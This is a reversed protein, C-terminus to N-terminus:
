IKFIKRLFSPLLLLLLIKFNDTFSPKKWESSKKLHKIYVKWLYYKYIFNFSNLNKKATKISDNNLLEIKDPDNCTNNKHWRYAAVKEDDYLLLDKAVVRLYFDWDEVILKEDYNGVIDFLKKDIFGTPGVIVWHKIIEKKLGADSFYSKKRYFNNKNRLGFLASDYLHEGDDDIVTADSVLMLKHPNKKLLQVRNTFTNNIFYDDSAILAIYKGKALTILENLTKTLGKNERKIYQIDINTNNEEIWSTITSDDLDTSGDNIIIIEKNKYHDELISDLTKGIFHNHNYYPILISILPM